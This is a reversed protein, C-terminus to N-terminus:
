PLLTIPETIIHDRVLRRLRSSATQRLKTLYQSNFYEDTARKAGPLDNVLIKLAGLQNCYFTGHNNAAAAEELAIDATELWNIHDNSWSIM